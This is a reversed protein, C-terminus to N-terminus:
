PSTSLEILCMPPVVSHFGAVGLEFNVALGNGFVIHRYQRPM